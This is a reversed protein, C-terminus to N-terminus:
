VKKAPLLGICCYEANIPISKIRSIFHEHTFLQMDSPHKERITTAEFYIDRNIRENQFLPIFTNLAAGASAEVDYLNMLMIKAHVPPPIKTGIKILLM